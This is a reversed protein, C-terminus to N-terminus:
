SGLVVWLSYAVMVTGLGILALLLTRGGSVQYNYGEPSSLQVYYRGSWTMLPPLLIMLILCSLGAYKLGRMFANPYLTVALVPPIFTAGFVLLNGVGNKTVKFGDSLFDSLCLSISLFSTAMCISTFFGALRTITSKQLLTTLSRVLDSNTSSSHMMDSLGFQGELPLVGMIAMDWAIYCILPILTGIFLAKRLLKIDEGFYTRLSPIIMACTFAIATVTISSPSFIHKFEGNDLNSSTVFPAMFIILLIFAGMKGFMLGRNV